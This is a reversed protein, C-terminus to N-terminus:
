KAAELKKLRGGFEKDISDVSNAVANINITHAANDADTAASLDRVDNRLDGIQRLLFYHNSTHQRHEGLVVGILVLLVLLTIADRINAKM